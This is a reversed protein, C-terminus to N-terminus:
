SDISECINFNGDADIGRKAMRRSYLADEQAAAFTSLAVSVGIQTFFKMEFIWRGSYSNRLPCGWSKNEMRINYPASSVSDREKAFAQSRDQYM